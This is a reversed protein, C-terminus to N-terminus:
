EGAMLRLIAQWDATCCGNRPAEALRRRVMPVPDEGPPTAGRPAVELMAATLVADGSVAARFLASRRELDPLRPDAGAALMRLALGRVVEPRRGSWTFLRNLATMGAQDQQALNVGASILAALTAEANPAFPGLAFAANRGHRDIRNIAAGREILLAIIGPPAAAGVAEMLATIGDANTADVRAGADLLLTLMSRSTDEGHSRVAQAAAMLPLIRASVPDPRARSDLLLRLMAVDGKWAASVLPLFAFDSPGARDPNAGSRLLLRAAALDGQEIAHGLPYRGRADAEMADEPADDLLAALAAMDGAAIARHAGLRPRCAAADLRPVGLTAAIRRAVPQPIRALGQATCYLRYDEAAAIRSAAPDACGGRRILADARNLRAPVRTPEARLVADLLAVAQIAEPCGGTQQLFFAADNAAEVPLGGPAFWDTTDLTPGFAALAARARAPASRDGRRWVRLAAARATAPSAAPAPTTVRWAAMPLALGTRDAPPTRAWGAQVAQTLEEAATTGAWHTLLGPRAPDTSLVDGGPLLLWVTDIEAPCGQFGLSWGAEGFRALRLNPRAEGCRGFPFPGFRAVRDAPSAHLSLYGWRQGIRGVALATEGAAPNSAAVVQEGPGAAFSDLRRGELILGIDVAAAPAAAFLLVACLALRM